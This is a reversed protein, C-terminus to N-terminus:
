WRPARKEAFAKLGERFHPSKVIRKGYGADLKMAEQLSPCDLGTRVAELTVSVSTPSCALIRDAFALATDLLREPETVENVFGLALGEEAAVNDGTLMLGMAKKLPIQRVLRHMGGALAALGVKPEPLAFRASRSAIIVDAALAIEFGGGYAIGNVAAIVPKRREFFSTLGGYGEDPQRMQAPTAKLTFKLDNGSCFAKGGAGTLIAVRLEPDDEFARFIQALEHNSEPTVANMAQPRNITVLLVGGRREVLCDNYSERLPEPPRSPQLPTTGAFRFYNKGDRSSVEIKQGIPEEGALRQLTAEDDSAVKALLRHGSADERAVVYGFRLADGEPVVTYSEITCAGNVAEARTVRPQAEMQRRLPESSCPQWQTLPQASYVGASHKSLFGGNATVLGYAKPMARLRGLMEAIAHLSYNNGAGGFFPLGGTVTLARGPNQWDIGLAECAAFVAIPFCSYLDLLEMDETRRGAAQLAGQAALKMALSASLDPRESVLADDADAYGHLYVWREAPIGLARATGASTLLLAAAQNVTEQAVLWRAYPAAVRYNASSDAALFEVSHASPFQAHPNAAAVQSFPAFLEAMALRHQQLSLGHRRRWAQELLPYVQVPFTLGHDIEYRSSLPAGLGRDELPGDLTESWDPKLGAKLAQKTIANAEAGAILVMRCEGRHIREAFENVLRQPTQGGLVSYIAQRPEAGLRRAISLPVNNSAGFPHGLRAAAKPVSDANFRVAAVVDIEAALDRGAGADELALRAARAALEVPAIAQELTAIRERLVYQGAGILVPVNDAIMASGKIIAVGTEPCSSRSSKWTSM